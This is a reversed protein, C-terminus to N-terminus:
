LTLNEGDNTVGQFSEELLQKWTETLNYIWPPHQNKQFDDVYEYPNQEKAITFRPISLDPLYQRFEASADEFTTTM